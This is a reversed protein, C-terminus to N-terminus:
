GTPDSQLKCEEMWSDQMERQVDMNWFWALKKNRQGPENLDVVFTNSKLDHNTLPKFCELIADPAGLRVMARRAQRYIGSHQKVTTEIATVHKWARTTKIQSNAARVETRFILAKYGLALRIAHLADNAQGERLRREKQALPMLGLEKCREMGLVSPLLLRTKEPCFAGPSIEPGTMDEDSSDEILDVWPNSDESEFDDPDVEGFYDSFRSHFVDLQNQLKDRRKYIELNQESTPHKGIKL